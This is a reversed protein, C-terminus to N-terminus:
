ARRGGRLIRIAVGATLCIGAFGVEWLGRVVALRAGGDLADCLIAALLAVVACIWSLRIASIDDPRPVRRDATRSCVTRTAYWLLALHAVLVIPGVTMAPVGAGRPPM